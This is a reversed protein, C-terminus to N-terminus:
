IGIEELRKNRHEEKTIFYCRLYLVIFGSDCRIFYCDSDQGEVDYIKGITILHLHNDNNDICIVKM